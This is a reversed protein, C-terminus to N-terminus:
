SGSGGGDVLLAVEVAAVLALVEVRHQGQGGEEVALPWGWGLSAGAGTIEEANKESSLLSRGGAQGGAALDFALGPGELGPLAM